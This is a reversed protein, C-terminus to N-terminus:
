VGSEAPIDAFQHVNRPDGASLKRLEALYRRRSDALDHRSFVPFEQISDVSDADTEVPVEAVLDNPGFIQNGFM